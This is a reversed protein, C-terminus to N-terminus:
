FGGDSEEAALVLGLLVETYEAIIDEEYVLPPESGRERPELQVLAWYLEPDLGFAEAARKAAYRVTTAGQLEVERRGLSCFVRIIVTSM